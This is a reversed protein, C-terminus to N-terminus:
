KRGKFRRHYIKKGKCTKALLIHTKLMHAEIRSGYDDVYCNTADIGHQRFFELAKKLENFETVPKSLAAFPDHEAYNVDLKM